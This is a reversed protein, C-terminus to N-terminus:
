IFIPHSCYQWAIHFNNEDEVLTYQKWFNKEWDIDIQSSAVIKQKKFGHKTYLSNVLNLAM